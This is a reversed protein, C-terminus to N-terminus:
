KLKGVVLDLELLSRYRNKYTKEKMELLGEALGKGFSAECLLDHWESYSETQKSRNSQIIAEEIYEVADASCERATEFHQKRGSFSPFMGINAFSTKCRAKELNYKKAM